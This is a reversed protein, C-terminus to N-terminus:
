SCFKISGFRKGTGHHPGRGLVTVISFGLFDRVEGDCACSLGKCWLFESIIAMLFSNFAKQQNWSVNSSTQSVANLNWFKCDEKKEFCFLSTCIDGFFDRKSRLCVQLCHCAAFCKIIKKTKWKFIEHKRVFIVSLSSSVPWTAFHWMLFVFMPTASLAQIQM